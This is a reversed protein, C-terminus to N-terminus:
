REEVEASPSAEAAASSVGGSSPPKSSGGRKGGKRSRCVHPSLLDRGLLAFDIPEGGGAADAPLKAVWDASVEQSASAGNYILEWGTGAGLESDDALGASAGLQGGGGAFIGQPFLRDLTLSLAEELMKPILYSLYANCLDLCPNSNVEILWTRYSADVMFDFGYVEFCHDINRPNLREQAARVADAMLSKIQPTIREQVNVGDKSHHEDLYRQFEPVSMKNAQEFKGYDEGKKQVADNNLHVMRDKSKANYEASATRLYYERYFFARFAGGGPEQTVLCYCRMDFKRKHILLPHEMYKQVVWSREKSDVRDAVEEASDYIRIGNGRNAKDGPKVLWIRQNKTESIADYARRWQAYEKDGSGHKVVFTLPVAGFPDRGHALYFNVISERLGAKATLWYDGEFHNHVRPPLVAQAAGKSKKPKMKVTAEENLTVNVQQHTAMAELFAKVTYQSWLFNIDASDDSPNNVKTRKDEFFTRGAPNGPDGPGPTWWPRNRLMQRLLGSNNGFQAVYFLKAGRSTPVPTAASQPASAAKGESVRSGTCPSGPGASRTRRRAKAEPRAVSAQDVTHASSTPSARGVRSPQSTSRSGGGRAGTARRRCV